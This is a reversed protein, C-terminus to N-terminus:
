ISRVDMSEMGLRRVAAVLQPYGGGFPLLRRELIREVTEVRMFVTAHSALHLLGFLQRNDRHALIRAIRENGEESVVPSYSTRIAITESQAYRAFAVQDFSIVAAILDSDIPSKCGFWKGPRCRKTLKFPM